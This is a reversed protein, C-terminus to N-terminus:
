YGPNVQSPQLKRKKRNLFSAIERTIEDLATPSINKRSLTFMLQPASGDDYTLGRGAEVAWTGAKGSRM